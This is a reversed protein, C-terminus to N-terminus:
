FAPFPAPFFSAKQHAPFIPQVLPFNTQLFIKRQRPLRNIKPIFASYHFMAGSPQDEATLSLKRNDEQMSPLCKGPPITGAAM